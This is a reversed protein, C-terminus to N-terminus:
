KGYVKGRIDESTHKNIFLAIDKLHRSLFIISVICFMYAFLGCIYKRIFVIYMQIYTHVELPGIKVDFVSALIMISLSIKKETAKYPCESLILFVFAVSPEPVVSHM